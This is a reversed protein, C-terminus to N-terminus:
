ANKITKGIAYYRLWLNPIINASKEGIREESNSKALLCLDKPFFCETMLHLFFFTDSEKERERSEGERLTVTVREWASECFDAFLHKKSEGIRM